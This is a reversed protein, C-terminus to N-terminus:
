QLVRVDQPLRGIRLMLRYAAFCVVGGGLLLATGLASDYADLTTSQTALLLLVVWPAAVALRAAQVVWGQRTELEARARADERLFTSLTRLVRGLDSGGVERAVRLTEVIRDGVPDALDDKLRDLCTAFRGSSRYQAAFRAFPPRLVEPGRTSLASLAEPLSLGARVASSLNDVVEPWVERLDARRRDALRRVQLYPLAFGYVAFVLSVTVTGTTLLVVVLVVLGLGVQLAILQAANIGTLGAAALLQQRGSVRRPGSRRQPARPGSRWILLLGVGLLLGLLAGSEIV